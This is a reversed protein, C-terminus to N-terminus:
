SLPLSIEFSSGEGEISAVSINGQHQEILRKALYLGVGSGSIGRHRANSARAFRGFIHPLESAPIGIGCDRVVLMADCDSRDLDIMVTGASYKLANGIINELVHRMAIPDFSLVIHPVRAQLTFRHFQTGFSSHLVEEVFSVFEGRELQLAFGAAQARALALADDALTALRKVQRLIIDLNEREEGHLKELVLEGYGAIVTLPGKFDHTFMALLDDKFANIDALALNAESAEEYLRVNRLALSCLAGFAELKRLHEAQFYESGKLRAVAIAAFRLKVFDGAEHLPVVMALGDSSLYSKEHERTWQLDTLMVKLSSLEEPACGVRAFNDDTAIYLAAEDAGAFQLALHSVAHALPELRTCGLLTRGAESLAANEQAIRAEEAFSLVRTLIRELHAALTQLFNLGEDNNAGVELVFAGWIKADIFLPAVLLGGARRCQKTAVDIDALVMHSVHASDPTTAIVHWDSKEYQWATCAAGFTQALFQAGITLISETDDIGKLAEMLQELADYRLDTEIMVSLVDAWMRLESFSRKHADPANLVLYGIQREVVTLPVVVLGHEFPKELEGFGHLDSLSAEKIFGVGDVMHPLLVEAFAKRLHSLMAFDLCFSPTGYVVASEATRPAFLLIQVGEWADAQLM